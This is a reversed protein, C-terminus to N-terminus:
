TVLDHIQYISYLIRNMCGTDSHSDPVCHLELWSIEVVIFKLNQAVITVDLLLSAKEDSNPGIANIEM